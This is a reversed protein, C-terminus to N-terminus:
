NNLLFNVSMKSCLSQTSASNDDSDAPSTPPSSPVSNFILASNSRTIPRRKIPNATLYVSNGATMEATTITTTTTTSTSNSNFDEFDCEDSKRKHHTQVFQYVPVVNNFTNQQPVQSYSKFDM